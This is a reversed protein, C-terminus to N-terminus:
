SGVTISSDPARQCARPLVVTVATQEVRKVRPRADIAQVTVRLPSVAKAYTVNVHAKAEGHKDTRANVTLQRQGPFLLGVRLPANPQYSVHVTQTQRCNAISGPAVGVLLDSINLSRTVRAHQKDSLAWVTIRAIAHGNSLKVQRPATVSLTLHGRADTMGYQTIARQGPATISARVLTTAPATVTLHTATGPQVQATRSGVQRWSGSVAQLTVAAVARGNHLAVGRPVPVTLILRGHADTADYLSVPRTGPFAITAHVVAQAAYAVAIHQAGGPKVLPAQLTVRLAPGSPATPKAPRGSGKDPPPNQGATIPTPSAAGQSGSATSPTATASSSQGGTAASPTATSAPSPTGAAGSTPVPTSVPTAAGGAVPTPTSAPAPTASPLPTSIPVPLPTTTPRPGISTLNGVVGGSNHPPSCNRAAMDRTTDFNIQCSNGVTDGFGNPALASVPDLSTFSGDQSAVGAALFRYQGPALGSTDDANAFRAHLLYTGAGCSQGSNTFYATFRTSAGNPGSITVGNPVPTTAAVVCISYSAIGASVGASINGIRLGADAHAPSTPHAAVLGLGLTAAILISAGRRIMITCEVVPQHSVRPVSSWAVTKHTSPLRGTMVRRQWPTTM